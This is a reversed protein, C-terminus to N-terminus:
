YVKVLNALPFNVLLYHMTFKSTHRFIYEGAKYNWVFSLVGPEFVGIAWLVVREGGRVRERRVYGRM